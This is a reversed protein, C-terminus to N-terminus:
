EALAYISFHSLWAFARSNATDDVSPPTELVEGGVGNTYVVHELLTIPRNCHEYSLSLKPAVLFTTGHPSFKSSVSLSVPMEATIVTYGSLAGVPIELKHPGFDLTAGEPGVIKVTATYQLPECYLLDHKGLIYSRNLKKWERLLEDYSETSNEQERAVRAKESELLTLLAPDSQSAYTISFNPRPLPLEPSASVGTVSDASCAALAGIALLVPLHRVRFSMPLPTLTSGRM